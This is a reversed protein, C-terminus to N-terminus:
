AAKGTGCAIEVGIDQLCGVFGPFSTEVTDVDHVTVPGESITAAAALSMAVRHDGCSQVEGTM